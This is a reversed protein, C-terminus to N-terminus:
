AKEIKANRHYGHKVFPNIYILKRDKKGEGCPQLRFHGRVEYDEDRYIKTFWSSDMVRIDFPTVNKVRDNIIRSKVTKGHKATETEVKAYKEFMLLIAIKETMHKCADQVKELEDMGDGLKDIIRKSLFLCTGNTSNLELAYASMLVDKLCTYIIVCDHKDDEPGLLARNVFATVVGEEVEFTLCSNVLNEVFFDNIDIKSFADASKFAAEVFKKSYLTVKGGCQRTVVGSMFSAM